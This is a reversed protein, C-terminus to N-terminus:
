TSGRVILEGLMASVQPTASDVEQAILQLLMQLAAVGMAYRPQRLTTLPPETYAAMEIDDFGTVSVDQPVRLGAKRLVSLVGIAMADNYCYIADPPAGWRRQAEALLTTAAVVGSQFRGEPGLISLEAPLGAATLTDLWARRRTITTQEGRENGIHAIRRHGGALLHNILLCGGAYDDHYISNLQDSEVHSNLLVIPTNAEGLLRVYGNGVQSSTAIIGDVQRGHFTNVVEIERQPDVAMSSVFLSYGHRKAEDEVGQAVESHFPDAFQPVVLGICFSRQLVLGRAVLSPTYGQEQAIQVIRARTEESMRGEGRLARSVTPASVDALQAIDKISFRKRSM